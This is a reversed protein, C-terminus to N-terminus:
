NTVKALAGDSLNVDLIKATAAEYATSFFPIESKKSIGSEM